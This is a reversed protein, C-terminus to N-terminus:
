STGCDNMGAKAVGQCKEMGEKGAFAGGAGATMGVALISAMTTMMLKNSDNMSFERMLYIYKCTDTVTALGYTEGCIGINFNESFM